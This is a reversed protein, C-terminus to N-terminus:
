WKCQYVSFGTNKSLANVLIKPVAFSRSMLRSQGTTAVMLSRSALRLGRVSSSNRALVTSNLARIAAGAAEQTTPDLTKACQDKEVLAGLIACVVCGLRKGDRADQAAHLSVTEGIKGAWAVVNLWQDTIIGVRTPWLSM